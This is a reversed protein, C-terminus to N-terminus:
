IKLNNVYSISWESSPAKLKESSKYVCIIFIKNQLVKSMHIEARRTKSAERSVIYIAFNVYNM